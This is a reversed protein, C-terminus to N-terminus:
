TCMLLYHGGSTVLTNGQDMITIRLPLETKGDSSYSLFEESEVLIQAPPFAVSTGYGQPGVENGSWAPAACSLRDSSAPVGPECALRSSHLDTSFIAGGAVEAFNSSFTNTSHM